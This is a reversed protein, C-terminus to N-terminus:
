LFINDILTATNPTVRTPKTILPSYSFSYMTELFEATPIHSDVNLLNINTDGMIYCIKKENKVVSLIESIEDTFAKVCTNPPRYMVGVIIGTKNCGTLSKQMEIFLTECCDKTFSIDERLKYGISENILLSVGGGSKAVRYANETKFGDPKFTNASNVNLWTESLGIVDFQNKLANLYIDLDHYNKQTSRINLHMISFSNNQLNMNDYKDNFSNETYYNCAPVGSDNHLHFLDPDTNKLPNDIEDTDLDFPDLLKNTAHELTSLSPANYEHCLANKFEDDDDFHNYPFISKVCLSCYWLNSERNSYVPDDVSFCPLCKIHVKSHCISCQLSHSHRHVRRNCINCLKIVSVNNSERNM